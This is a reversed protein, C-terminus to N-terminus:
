NVTVTYAFKFYPTTDPANNAISVTTSITESNTPTGSITFTMTGSPNLSANTTGGVSFPLGGSSTIGTVSYATTSSTNKITFITSFQSNRAATTPYTYTGNNYVIDTVNGATVQLTTPISSAANCSALIALAGIAAAVTYWKMKM